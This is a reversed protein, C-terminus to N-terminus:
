VDHLGTKIRMRLSDFQIRMLHANIVNVHCLLYASEFSITALTPTM